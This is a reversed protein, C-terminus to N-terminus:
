KETQDVDVQNIDVAIEINDNDLSVFGGSIDFSLDKTFTDKTSTDANINQDEDLEDSASSGMIRVKGAKLSALIPEHGTLIGLEGGASPVVVMQASGTFLLGNPSVCDVKLM